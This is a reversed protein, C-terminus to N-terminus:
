PAAEVVLIHNDGLLVPGRLAAAVVSLVWAIPKRSLQYGDPPFLYHERLKLGARPLFQRGLLDWFIPTIHTPEGFDDMTRIKGALLFKIRAPLSDVNPTTLVAVGGPALLHAINRLFGIASEVHEIVEIATVLEFKRPGLRSAFDPQDFDLALFPPRAAYGAPDRDVAVVDCGLVLLRESMAGPGAGLDVARVGPHAYRALVRGAVFDHLGDNTTTHLKM